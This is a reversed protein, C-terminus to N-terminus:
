RRPPPPPAPGCPYLQTSGPLWLAIAVSLCFYAARRFRSFARWVWLAPACPRLSGLCDGPKLVASTIRSFRDRKANGSLALLREGVGAMHAVGDGAEVLYFPHGVGLAVLRPLPDVLRGSTEPDLHRFRVPVLQGDAAFGAFM